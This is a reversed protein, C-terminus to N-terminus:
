INTKMSNHICLRCIQLDYIENEKIIDYGEAQLVELAKQESTKDKNRNEYEAVADLISTDEPITKMYKNFKPKCITKILNYALTKDEEDNSDTLDKLYKPLIGEGSQIKSELLNENINTMLQDCNNLMNDLTGGFLSKIPEFTKSNSDYFFDITKITPPMWLPTCPVAAVVASFGDGTTTAGIVVAKQSDVPDTSIQGGTVTNAAVLKPTHLYAEITETSAAELDKMNRVSDPLCMADADNLRKSKNNNCVDCSGKLFLGPRQSGRQIFTKKTITPTNTLTQRKCSRCYICSNITM